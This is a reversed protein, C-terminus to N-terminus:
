FSFGFNLSLAKYVDSSTSRNTGYYSYYSRTITLEQLDYGLGINLSNRKTLNLNVGLSINGMFGADVFNNNSALFSYGLGLGLYPSAKM